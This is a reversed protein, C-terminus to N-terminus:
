EGHENSVIYALEPKLHKKFAAAAAERSIAQAPDPYSQGQQGFAGSMGVVDGTGTDVIVEYVSNIVPIGQHLKRFRFHVEAGTQEAGALELEKVAPDLYRQLSQVAPSM